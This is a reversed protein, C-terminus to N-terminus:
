FAKILPHNYLVVVVMRLALGTDQTAALVSNPYGFESTLPNGRIGWFSCKAIRYLCLNSCM